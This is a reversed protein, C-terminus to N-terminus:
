VLQLQQAAQGAQARNNVGLKRYLRKVHDKVTNVSIILEAAIEPNSRGAALLRLVRQEQPSLPEALVAMAMNRTEETTMFARLITRLYARLAPEQISPALAQLLSALLQGEALFIRLFGGNRAQSLARLLWPQALLEQGSAAHARALLLQIELISYILQQAQALPLLQELQTRAADAQGQALLLRARLLDLGLRHEFALVHEQHVLMDLSRQAGQLDGAALQHRAQWGLVYPLLLLAEPSALAHLRAIIEAFQQRAATTQGRASRVLALQFNARDRQVPEDDRVTELMDLAYREAVALENWEFAISALGLLANAMHERDAQAKASPLVQRYYEAAQHLEGQIFSCWGLLM